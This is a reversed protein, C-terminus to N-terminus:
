GAKWEPVYDGPRFPQVGAKAGLWEMEKKQWGEMVRSIKGDPQVLFLTPVTAIGFGNSAPFDDEPDLLTPFTVGFERNLEITDGADDQSIGFIRLSGGQHLRELYPFTLQCVPCTIKFFALLVEGNAILDFLWVEAGDLSPIRFDPATAGAQLLRLTRRAAM